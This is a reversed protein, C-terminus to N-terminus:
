AKELKREKHYAAREQEAFCVRRQLKTFSLRLIKKIFAAKEFTGDDRVKFFESLQFGNKDIITDAFKESVDFAYISLKPMDDYDKLTEDSTEHYKEKLKQEDIYDFKYFNDGFENSIIELEPTGTVM